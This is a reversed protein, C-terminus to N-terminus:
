FDLPNDEGVASEVVEAEVPPIEIGVNEKSANLTQNEINQLVITRLRNNTNPPNNNKDKPNFKQWASGIANLAGILEKNTFGDFGRAKFEHLAALALNNSEVALQAMANNFGPKSEIHSQISNSSNQSYGVDLAIEKKTTGTAGFVRKAYAM